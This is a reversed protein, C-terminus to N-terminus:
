GRRIRRRLRRPADAGHQIGDAARGRVRQLRELADHNVADAQAVVRQLRTRSRNRLRRRTVVLALGGALAGGAAGLGKKSGAAELARGAFDAAGRAAADRTEGLKTSAATRAQTRLAEVAARARAIVIPKVDQVKAKASDALVPGVEAVKDRARAIAVPKLEQVRALAVPKLEQIKERGRTLAVRRIDDARAQARAKLAPQLERIKAQARARLVPQLQDAKAKARTVALTRADELRAKVDTSRIAVITTALEARTQDIERSIQATDRGM